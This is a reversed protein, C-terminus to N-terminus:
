AAIEDEATEAPSDATSVLLAILQNLFAGMSDHSNVLNFYQFAALEAVGSPPVLASGLGKLHSPDAVLLLRLTWIAGYWGLTRYGTGDGLLVFFEAVCERWKPLVDGGIGVLRQPVLLQAGTVVALTRLVSTPPLRALEEGYARLFAITASYARVRGDAIDYSATTGPILSPIADISAHRWRAVAGYLEQYREPTFGRPQAVVQNACCTPCMCEFGLRKKLVDRRQTRSASFRLEGVYSITIETGARVPTLAYIIITSGHAFWAANPRCSHNCRVATEFFGYAYAWTGAGIGMPLENATCVAKARALVDAHSVGMPTTAPAPAYTALYDMQAKLDDPFRTALYICLAEGSDEARAGPATRLVATFETDDELPVLKGISVATETLLIEGTAVNSTAMIRWQGRGHAPDLDNVARVRSTPKALADVRARAKKWIVSM